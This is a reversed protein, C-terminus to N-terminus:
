TGKGRLSTMMMCTIMSLLLDAWLVLLAFLLWAPRRLRAYRRNSPASPDSVIM